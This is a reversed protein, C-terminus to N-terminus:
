PRECGDIVYGISLTSGDPGKYEGEAPLDGEAACSPVPMVLTCDRTMLSLTIM